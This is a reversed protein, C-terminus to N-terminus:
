RDFDDLLRDDTKYWDSDPEEHRLKRYDRLTIYLYFFGILAPLGFLFTVILDREDDFFYVSLALLSGWLLVAGLYYLRIRSRYVLGLYLGSSVQWLGFFPLALMGLGFWITSLVLAALLAQVWFDIRIFTRPLPRATKMAFPM